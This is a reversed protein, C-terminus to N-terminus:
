KLWTDFDTRERIEKIIESQKEGLVVKLATIYGQIYYGEHYHKSDRRLKYFYEANYIEKKIQSETLM